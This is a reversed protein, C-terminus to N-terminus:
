DATTVTVPVPPRRRKSDATAKGHFRHGGEFPILPRRATSDTAAKAQFVCGRGKMQVATIAPRKKTRTPACPEYEAQLPYLRVQGQSRVRNDRSLSLKKRASATEFWVASGRYRPDSPDRPLPLDQLHQCQKQKLDGPARGTAERTTALSTVAVSAATLSSSGRM